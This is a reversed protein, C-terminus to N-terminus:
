ICLYMCVCMYLIFCLWEWFGGERGDEWGLGWGNVSDRLRVGM